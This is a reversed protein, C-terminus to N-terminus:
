WWERAELRRPHKSSTQTFIRRARMKTRTDYYYFFFHRRCVVAVFILFVRLHFKLIKEGETTQRTKKEKTLVGGGEKKKM